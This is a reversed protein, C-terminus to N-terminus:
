TTRFIKKARFTQPETILVKIFKLIKVWWWDGLLRDRQSLGFDNMLYLFFM